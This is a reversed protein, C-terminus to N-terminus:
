KLVMVDNGAFADELDRSLHSTEFIAIIKGHNTLAPEEQTESLPLEGGLLWVHVLFEESRRERVIAAATAWPESQRSGIIAMAIEALRLTDVRQVDFSRWAECDSWPYSRPAVFSM